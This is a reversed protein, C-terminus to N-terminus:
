LAIDSASERVKARKTDNSSPAVGIRKEKSQGSTQFFATISKQAMEQKQLLSGFVSHFSKCKNPSSRAGRTGLRLLM